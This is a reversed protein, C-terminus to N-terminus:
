GQYLPSIIDESIRKFLGDISNKLEVLKRKTTELSQKVIVTGKEKSLQENTESIKKVIEEILLDFSELSKGSLNFSDAIEQEMRNMMVKFNEESVSYVKKMREIIAKLSGFTNVMSQVKGIMRSITDNWTGTDTISISSANLSGLNSLFFQDESINKILEILSNIKAMGLTVYLRRSYEEGVLPDYDVWFKTIRDRKNQNQGVQIGLSNLNDIGLDYLATHHVFMNDSNNAYENKYATSYDDVLQLMSEEDPSYEMIPANVYIRYMVISYRRYPLRSARYEIQEVSSLLPNKLASEQPFNTTYVEPNSSTLLMLDKIRPRSVVRNTEDNMLHPNNNMIFNIESQSLNMPLNMNRFNLHLLQGAQGLPKILSNYASVLSDQRGMRQMLRVMNMDRENLIGISLKGGGAEEPKVFMDPDVSFSY